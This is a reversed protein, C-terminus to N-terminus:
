EYEVVYGFLFGGRDVDNWKGTTANIEIGDHGAGAGDDPQGADWNSYSFPEGNVWEWGGQPEASGPPQFGGLWAANPGSLLGTVLDNEAQSSIVALHGQLPGRSLAEAAAKAAAWNLQGSVVEYEHRYAVVDVNNGEGSGEDVEGLHDVTATVTCTAGGADPVYCDTAPGFGIGVNGSAGAVLGVDERYTASEGGSFEFLVEFPGADTPGINKMEFSVDHISCDGANECEIRVSSTPDLTVILDPFLPPAFISRTDWIGEVNEVDVSQGAGVKTKSLSTYVATVTLQQDSEIIVYGKGGPVKVGALGWMSGALDKCDIDLAARPPLMDAMAEGTIPAEGMGVALTLSKMISADERSSNLVNVATKYRGPVLAPKAGGLNPVCVVKVPYRYVGDTVTAAEEGGALRSGGFIALGVVVVALVLYVPILGKSSLLSRSM